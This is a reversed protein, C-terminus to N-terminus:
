AKEEGREVWEILRDRWEAKEEPTLSATVDMLREFLQETTAIQM